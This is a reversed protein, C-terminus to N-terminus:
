QHHKDGQKLLLLNLWRQEILCVFVLARFRNLFPWVLWLIRAKFYTKQHPVSMFTFCRWFVQFLNKLHASQHKLGVPFYLMIQVM